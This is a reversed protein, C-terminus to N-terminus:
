VDSFVKYLSFLTGAVFIVVMAMIIETLNQVIVAAGDPWGVYLPYKYEFFAETESGINVLTINVSENGVMIKKTEGEQIMGTSNFEGAKRNVLTVNAYGQADNIDTARASVSGTLSYRESEQQEFATTQPNELNLIIAPVLVSVSLLIFIMGIVQVTGTEFTAM